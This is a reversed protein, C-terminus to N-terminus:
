NALNKSESNKEHSIDNLSQYQESIKSYTYATGKKAYEWTLEPLGILFLCSALVGKNWTTKATSVMDGTKPLKPLEFPIQELVPKMLPKIKKKLDEYLVSTTESDKWVGKDITFYIASSM